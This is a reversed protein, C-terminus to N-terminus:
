GSSEIACSQPKRGSVLLYLEPAAATGRNEISVSRRALFTTDVGSDCAYTGPPLRSGEVKGRACEGFPSSLRVYEPGKTETASGFQEFTVKCAIGDLIEDYSRVEPVVKAQAIRQDLAPKRGDADAREEIWLLRWVDRGKDRAMHYEAETWAWKSEHRRTRSCFYVAKSHLRGAVGKLRSKQRKSCYGDDYLVYGTERDVVHFGRADRLVVSARNVSGYWRTNAGSGAETATATTMMLALQLLAVQAVREAGNGIRRRGDANCRARHRDM